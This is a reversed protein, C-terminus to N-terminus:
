LQQSARVCRVSVASNTLKTLDNFLGNNKDELFYVGHLGHTANIHDFHVYAGRYGVDVMTGNLSRMGAAPWWIDNTVGSITCHSIIGYYDRGPSHYVAYSDSKGFFRGKREGLITWGAPCPDFATKTRNWYAEHGNDLLGTNGHAKGDMYTQNDAAKCDTWIGDKPFYTSFTMPNRISGTLDLYSRQYAWGSTLETNFWTGDTYEGFPSHEFEKVYKFDRNDEFSFNTLSTRDSYSGNANAGIFPDKRGMQYYLGYTKWGDDPDASTAGLNRDMIALFNKSADAHFTFGNTSYDGGACQGSTYVTQPEETLWIHWSWLIEKTDKDYLAVVVNGRYAEGTAPDTNVKLSIMGKGEAGSIYHVDSVATQGCDSWLVDADLERGETDLLCDQRNGMCYASIVYSGPNSFIYTNATEMPEVDPVRLNRVYVKKCAEVTIFEGNDKLELTRRLGGEFNLVLTLDTQDVPLALLTFKYAQSVDLLVGDGPLVITIGGSTNQTTVVPAADTSLTATFSGALPTSSSILSVSKLKSTIADDAPTLFTFEFATVLPKFGLTVEGDTPSKKTAAYMYAYNMNAKFERGGNPLFAEQTAPIVGSLTATNDDAPELVAKAEDVQNDTFAYNTNMGPVPYMAYFYHDGEGWGLVTEGVPAIGAASKQQIATVSGEIVYDATPGNVAAECLVRIQDVDPIWDIREYASVSTVPGGGEDVGSYETRTMVGNRYQTSAGFRIANGAERGTGGLEKECSVLAPFAATLLLLLTIYGKPHSCSPKLM